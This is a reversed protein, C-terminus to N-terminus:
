IGGVGRSLPRRHDLDLAQAREVADHHAVPRANLRLRDTRDDEPEVLGASRKSRDAVARGERRLALALQASLQRRKLGASAAATLRAAPGGVALEFPDLKPRLQNDLDAVVVDAVPPNAVARLDNAPALVLRRALARDVLQVSPAVPPWTFGGKCMTAISGPPAPLSASRKPSHDIEM